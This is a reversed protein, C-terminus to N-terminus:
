IRNIEENLKDFCAKIDIEKATDIEFSYKKFKTLLDTESIRPSNGSKLEIRKTKKLNVFFDSFM